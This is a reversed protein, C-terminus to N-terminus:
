EVEVVILVPCPKGLMERAPVTDRHQPVVTLRQDLSTPKELGPDRSVVAAVVNRLLGALYTWM